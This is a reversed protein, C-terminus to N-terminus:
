LIREQDRRENIQTLDRERRTGGRYKYFEEQDLDKISAEYNFQATINGIARGRKFLANACKDLGFEMNTM